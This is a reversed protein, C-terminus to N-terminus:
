KIVALGAYGVVERDGTVDGSTAYALLKAEKAGESECAMMMASIPGFGCCTSNVNALEDYFGPVDLKEIHQILLHDKKRAVDVDEYHTFDSSAVIVTRKKYKRLAFTLENAVEKVTEYDQLGIAIPVIKFDKFFYQLFPIQVEISHERRHALEDHDVIGPPLLDVFEQDVDVTGLPTEWPETSVAIASGEWTHKPGLLIFTPAGEISAYVKSAVGGSYIYGAHPVVVGPANLKPMPAKPALQRMLTLLEEKNGPYFMGAVAPRRM